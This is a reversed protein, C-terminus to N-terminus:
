GCLKELIICLMVTLYIFNIRFSQSRKNHYWCHIFMTKCYVKTRNLRDKAAQERFETLDIEGEEEMAQSVLFCSSPEISFSVVRGGDGAAHCEPFKSFRHSRTVSAHSAPIKIHRSASFLLRM